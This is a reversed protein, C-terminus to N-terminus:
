RCLGDSVAHLVFLDSCFPQHLINTAYGFTGVSLLVRREVESQTKSGTFRITLQFYEIDIQVDDFPRNRGKLFATACAVMLDKSQFKRAAVKDTELM